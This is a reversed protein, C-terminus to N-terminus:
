TCYPVILANRPIVDLLADADDPPVRISHPIQLDAQRWVEEARSDLFVVRDGADIREKAQEPSIREPEM